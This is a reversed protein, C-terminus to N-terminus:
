RSMDTDIIIQALMTKIQQEVEPPITSRGHSVLKSTLEGIHLDSLDNHSRAIDYAKDKM